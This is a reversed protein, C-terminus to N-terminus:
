HGSLNVPFANGFGVSTSIIFNFGQGSRDRGLSMREEAPPRLLSYKVHFHCVKGLPEAIFKEWFTM